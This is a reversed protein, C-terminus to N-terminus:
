ALEHKPKDKVDGVPSKEKKGIGTTSTKYESHKADYAAMGEHIRAIRGDAEEIRKNAQEVSSVPIGALYCAYAFGGVVSSVLSDLRTGLSFPSKPSSNNNPAAGNPSGITKNAHM